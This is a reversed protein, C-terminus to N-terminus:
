DNGAKQAEYNFPHKITMQECYLYVYQRVYDRTLCFLKSEMDFITEKLEDEQDKYLIPKRGLCKVVDKGCRSKKVHRGLTEGPVNNEKSSRKESRKYTVVDRVAAKMNLLTRKAHPVKEKAKPM